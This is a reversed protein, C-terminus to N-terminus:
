EPCRTSQLFAQYAATEDERKFFYQPLFVEWGPQAISQLWVLRLFQVFDRTAHLLGKGAGHSLYIRWLFNRPDKALAVADQARWSRGAWAEVAARLRPPAAHTPDQYFEEVRVPDLALFQWLRTPRGPRQPHSYWRPDVIQCVLECCRDLDGTPLFMAASWAPHYRFIRHSREDPGAQGCTRLLQYVPFDKGTMEHWCGPTMSAISPRWLERLILEMDDLVARCMLPSGVWIRQRQMRQSRLRAEWMTVILSANQAVGLVRVVTAEQFPPADVFERPSLGSDCCAPEHKGYWVRGDRSAHVRLFNDM